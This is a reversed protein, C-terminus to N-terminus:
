KEQADPMFASSSTRGCLNFPFIGFFKRYLLGMFCAIIQAAYTLLSFAISLAVIPVRTSSAYYFALTMILCDLLGICFSQLALLRVFKYESQFTYYLGGFCCGFVSIYSQKHLDELPPASQNEEEDIEIHLNEGTNHTSDNLNM